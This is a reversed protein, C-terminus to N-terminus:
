RHSLAQEVGREFALETKLMEANTFACRSFHDPEARKRSLASTKLPASAVLRGSVASLEAEDKLM